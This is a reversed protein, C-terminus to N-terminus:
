PQWSRDGCGAAHNCFRAAVFLFDSLRNLYILILGQERRVPDVARADGGATNAPDPRDLLALVRREARRCVCRAVHGWAAAPHGGPLIFARLAPLASEMRDIGRELAATREESFPALTTAASSGPSAALWGGAHLLDGQIRELERGLGALSAEDPERPATSVAPAAQGVPAKPARDAGGGAIEACPPPAGHLIAVAASFAGIVSNLEDVDGYAEIRQDCKRVREGSYLSTNGQDGSRTYIKM